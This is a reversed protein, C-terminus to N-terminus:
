FELGRFFVTKIRFLDASRYLTHFIRVREFLTFIYSFVFCILHFGRLRLNSGLQPGVPTTHVIKRLLSVRPQGTRRM